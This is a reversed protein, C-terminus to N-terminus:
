SSGEDCTPVVAPLEACKIQGCGWLPNKDRDPVSGAFNLKDVLHTFRWVISGTEETKFIWFSCGRRGVKAMALPTSLLNSILFMNLLQAFINCSNCLFSLYTQSSSFYGTSGYEGKIEAKTEVLEWPFNRPHEGRWLNITWYKGHGVNLTRQKISGLEINQIGHLSFTMGRLCLLLNHWGQCFSSCDLM